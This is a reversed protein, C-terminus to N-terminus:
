RMFCYSAVEALKVLHIRVFRKNHVNKWDEGLIDSVAFAAAIKVKRIKAVCFLASAEMEVTSVGEKRYHEIEKKTERFPADITWNTAKTFRINNKKFTNELRKTLIKDPYAYKSHPIYHQSTGEDRIAKECLFIGATKLGGAIGINIFEKIGLAVLNEFMFVAHPAGVGDILVFCFDKTYCVKCGWSFDTKLKKFKGKFKRKLWFFPTDQYTIICKRPIKNFYKKRGEGLHDPLM